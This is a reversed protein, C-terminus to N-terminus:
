INPGLPNAEMALAPVYLRERQTIIDNGEQAFVKLLPPPSGM